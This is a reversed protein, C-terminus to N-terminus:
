GIASNLLWWRISEGESRGHSKQGNIISRMATHFVPERIGVAEECATLANDVGEAILGVSKWSALPSRFCRKPSILRVQGM